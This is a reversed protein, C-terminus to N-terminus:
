GPGGAEAKGPDRDAPLPGSPGPGVQGDVAVADRSAYKRFNRLLHREQREFAGGLRMLTTSLDVAADAMGRFAFNSRFRGLPAKWSGHFLRDNLENWTRVRIASMLPM